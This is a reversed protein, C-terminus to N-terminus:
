LWLLVSMIIKKWISELLKYDIEIIVSKGFVYYNFKELLWCVVFLEREINSYCLEIEILLWSVYCM